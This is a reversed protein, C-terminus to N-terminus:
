RPFTFSPIQLIERQSLFHRRHIPPPRRRHMIATSVLKSFKAKKRQRFLAAVSRKAKAKEKAAKKYKADRYHNAIEHKVEHSCIPLFLQKIRKSHRIPNMHIDDHGANILLKKPINNPHHPQQFAISKGCVSLGESCMKSMLISSSLERANKKM